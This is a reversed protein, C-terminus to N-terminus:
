LADDEGYYYIKEPKESLKKVNARRLWSRIAANHNKYKVGKSAIYEDLREIYESIIKEGYDSKLKEFEGDTLKVNNYEGYKKKPLSKKSKKSEDCINDKINDKYNDKITDTALKPLLNNGNKAIAGKGNKAIDLNPLLWNQCYGTKSVSVWEEYNKNVSLIRTKGNRKESKLVNLAILKKIERSVHDPTIEVAKSIESLSIEASKQNFGYTRRIIYLLIRHQSDPLKLRILADFLENAIKVYGDEIQPNAM